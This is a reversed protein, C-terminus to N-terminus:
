NVDNYETLLHLKFKNAFLSTNLTDKISSEITYWLSYSSQYISKAALSAKYRPIRPYNSIRTFHQHVECNRVLNRNLPHPLEQNYMKHAFTALQHKFLDHFKLIKHQLFLPNTHTNYSAGSILRIAKKQLIWIPNTFKKGASGWLILGYNLHSHFLSFYLIRLHCSLLNYKSRRIVYLSGTLKSRVMSIHHEWTLKDDIQMGLFTVVHKQEISNMDISIQMNNVHANSTASFLMYHTKKVNLSLKNTKFWEVLSALDINIFKYLQRLCDSKKYITTDDAFLISKSHSLCNRADNVYIIFLLPGLISGQPVGCEINSTNSCNSNIQVYQKRNTLYNEFWSLAVGRVGYFNLKKLLIEHNITDFAKSLVLYVAM